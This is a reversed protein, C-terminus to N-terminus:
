SQPRVDLKEPRSPPLRLRPFRLRLETQPRRPTEEGNQRRQLAPNTQLNPSGHILIPASTRDQKHIKLTLSQQEKQDHILLPLSNVSVDRGKVKIM